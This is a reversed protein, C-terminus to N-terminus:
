SQEVNIHKLQSYFELGQAFQPLESECMSSQEEHIPPAVPAIQIPNKQLQIIPIM